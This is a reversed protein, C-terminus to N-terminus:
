RRKNSKEMYEKIKREEWNRSFLGGSFYVSMGHAILGAGWGFLPWVFWIHSSGDM